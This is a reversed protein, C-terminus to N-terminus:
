FGLETEIFSKAGDPGSISLQVSKDKEKNVDLAFHFFSCCQRESKIFDTVLDLTEDSPDLQFSYGNTLPKKDLIKAALTSLITAKRKRFEDNTLQCAIDQPQTM